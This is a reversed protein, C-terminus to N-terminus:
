SVRGTSVSASYDPLADARRASCARTPASSAPSRTSPRSGGSPGSPPTGTPSSAGRGPRLRHAGPPARRPVAARGGAADDPRRPTSSSRTIHAAVLLGDPDYVYAEGGTMGPASTTASRARPGRRHRRDHVRVRPRRHGRRGGDRRQQPRRVAGRGARGRVAPRRHRRLARHQRRPGPRRRRRRAARIVIRGGGMGKGVYDNAEGVLELHVGDALFAGFSQGASGPSAPTCRAPRSATAGSSASRAASRRASRHPRRQHDHVRADVDRGEWLATFGDDLLQEDLESRPRQIDVTPSSAGRPVPPDARRCSCRRCTSRTPAPTAPPRSACCSSGASPRTSRACGSRPSCDRAGGRRHVAPVHGRGRATGAFKARLNPRQTAIGTPCTDRHCARVM